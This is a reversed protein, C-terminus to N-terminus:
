LLGLLDMRGPFRRFPRWVFATVAVTRRQALSAALDASGVPRSRNGAQLVVLQGVDVLVALSAVRGLEWAAAEELIAVRAALRYDRGM